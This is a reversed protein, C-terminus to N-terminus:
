PQLDDADDGDISELLHQSAEDGAERPVASEQGVWHSELSLGVRSGSDEHVVHYGVMLRDALKALKERGWHGVTSLTDVDKLAEACDLALRLPDLVRGTRLVVSDRSYLLMGLPIGAAVAISFLSFILLAPIYTIRYVLNEFAAQVTVDHDRAGLCGQCLDLNSIFNDLSASLYLYNSAFTTFNMTRKSGSLSEGPMCGSWGPCVKSETAASAGIAGVGGFIDQRPSRWGRPIEILPLWSFINVFPEGFSHRSTPWAGSSRNRNMEVTGFQMNAECVVGWAEMAPKTKTSDGFDVEFSYHPLDGFTSPSSGKTDIRPNDSRTMTFLLVKPTFVVWSPDSYSYFAIMDYFNEPNDVVADKFDSQMYSGFVLFCWKM